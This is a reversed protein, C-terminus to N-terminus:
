FLEALEITVGDPGEVFALKKKGVIFVNKILTVNNELLMSLTEQVDKVEFAIHDYGLQFARQESARAFPRPSIGRYHLLQIEFSDVQEPYLSLSIHDAGESHEIGMASLVVDAPLVEAHKGKFGLLSFFATAKEVDSVVITVHNITIIM